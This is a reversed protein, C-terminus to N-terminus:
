FPFECRDRDSQEGAAMSQSDSSVKIQGQKLWRVSIGDVFSAFDM